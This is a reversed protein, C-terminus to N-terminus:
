RVPLTLTPGYGQMQGSQLDFLQRLLMFTSKTNLDDDRIYFWHGRYHTSVYAAAPPEESTEVQFMRGAPTDSWDFLRREDTVTVTVVAAVEHLEPVTVNHSLYNLIGSVSRTQIFWATNDSEKLELMNTSVQFENLSRDLNLLTYLEDIEGQKGSAGARAGGHLKVFIAEGSEGSESSVQRRGFEILQSEQLSLLIDMLRAFEVYHPAEQPTPGSAQPANFLYNIREMCLGLVRDLRWGSETLVFVAEPQLASYVNKLLDAGQLPQYSLTPSDSYSFSISPSLSEGGGAVPVYAGVNANANMNLSSTVSSIMLFFPADRYRLRVINELLENNVSNIISQNYASHTRQVASPGFASQCGPLLVLALGASVAVRYLRLNM